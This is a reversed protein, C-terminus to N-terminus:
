VIFFVMGIFKTCKEVNQTVNSGISDLLDLDTIVNLTAKAQETDIIVGWQSESQFISMPQLDLDLHISENTLLKKQQSLDVFQLLSFQQLETEDYNLMTFDNSINICKLLGFSKHKDELLRFDNEVLTENLSSSSSNIDAIVKNGQISSVEKSRQSEKILSKTKQNDVNDEIMFDNKEKTLLDESFDSYALSRKNLIENAQRKLINKNLNQCSSSERSLPSVSKLSIPSFRQRNM